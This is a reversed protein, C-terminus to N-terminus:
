SVKTTLYHHVGQAATRGEHIAWVVLSQGRTMDGATFVGPVSTMKNADAIVNGRADIAVGLEELMGKKVPGTFGMALLLLDCDMEFESGAVESMKMQGSAPDKGWQLRIAHLKKLQGNEGSLRKTLISYDRVCGEEHSSSTRLIFAWNPWPNDAARKQPPQPMLEFQHVSLAGQRIATGVCDSGTDGGGLVVVHRGQASVVDMSPPRVQLINDAYQAMFKEPSYKNNRLNQQPLYYMAQHVGKLERGPVPLERGAEAGGCLVIADFKDRLEQSPIDVGVHANVKFVVGEERMRDVRRFVVWKELKFDPIGLTLLGGILENKEYVTVKHGRKNLEDACALGAPGSGIVAVKMGTRHKPPQPKVWGKDYAQEIISLEINKITVAPANIGLVCANECPAPCVRGTFEPFNNTKHLREIAEEWRDRYILDNWDPIINGIPCGSQCFPVGCDMCRGGQDRLEKAAPLHTFEKFTKIRRAVDDKKYDQRDHKMFGKIDGM